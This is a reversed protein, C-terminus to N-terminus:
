SCSKQWIEWDSFSSVQKYCSKLEGMIFGTIEPSDWGEPSSIRKLYSPSIVWYNPRNNQIIPAVQGIPKYHWPLVTFFKTSPLREAKFYFLGDGAVLVTDRTTTNEKIWTVTDLMSDGPLIDNAINNNRGSILRASYWPLITIFLQYIMFIGAALTIIKPFLRKSKISLELVLGFLLALIPLAYLFHHRHFVSFIISPITIISVSLLLFLATRLTPPIVKLTSISYIGIIVPIYFLFIENWPLNLLNGSGRALKIYNIYYFLNNYILDPLANQKVFYLSVLLMPLIIAFSLFLLSKLFQQNLGKRINLLTFITIVFLALASIQNFLVTSSILIGIIFIDRNKNYRRLVVRRLCTSTTPESSTPSAFRSCSSVGVTLDHTSDNKSGLFSFVLNFTLILFVGTIAEGSYQIATTFYYFLVAFFFLSLSTGLPSLFRTATKFILILTLLTIVLSLLPETELNWNTVKFFPLVFYTSLPLYFNLFDKYMVLGKDTFWAM